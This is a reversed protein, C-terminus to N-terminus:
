GSAHCVDLLATGIRDLDDKAMPRLPPVTRAFAPDDYLRAVLGKLAVLGGHGDVTEIRRRATAQLAADDPTDPLAACDAPFANPLGGIMGAGGAQVMRRLIRDDGTFIALDPFNQILTKGAALDGTSDKIGIIRDGVRDMVERVRDPTFLLGSFAPFNYLLIQLDPVGARAVLAAYFDGLGGPADYAYYFPPLVLVARCGLDAYGRALRAADDLSSAIVGPVQRSMDMGAAKMAALAALKQDTSFSAGEGTTGFVSTMICGQARMTECHAQLRPADIEFDATVPTIAAGIVGCLDAPGPM